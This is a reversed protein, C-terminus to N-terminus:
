LAQQATQKTKAGVTITPFAALVCYFILSLFIV